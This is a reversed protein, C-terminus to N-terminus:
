NGIIEMTKDHAKTFSDGRLMLKTMMNMHKPTHHKKHKEM